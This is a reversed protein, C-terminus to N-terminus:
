LFKILCAFHNGSLLMLSSFCKFYHHYVILKASKDTNCMDEMNEKKLIIDFYFFPIFSLRVYEVFIVISFYTLQISNVALQNM